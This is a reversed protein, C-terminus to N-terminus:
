PYFILIIVQAAGYLIASSLAIAIIAKWIGFSQAESVSKVMGVLGYIPTAFMGLYAAVKISLIVGGANPIKNTFYIMLFFSITPVFRFLAGIVAARTRHITGQGDMRKAVSWIVMTFAQIITFTWAGLALFTLITLALGKFSILPALTLKDLSLVFLCLQFFNFLTLGLILLFHSSSELQYVSSRPKLWLSLIPNLKPTTM